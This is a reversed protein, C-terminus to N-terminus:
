LNEPFTTLYIKILMLTNWIMQSVAPCKTQEMAVVVANIYTNVAITSNILAREKNSVLSYIISTSKIQLLYEQALHLKFSM